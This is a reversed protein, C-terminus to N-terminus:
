QSRWFVNKWVKHVEQCVPCCLANNPTSSSTNAAFVTHKKIKGSAKIESRERKGSSMLLREHVVAKQQLCERFTVLNAVTTGRELFSFWQEKLKIPLKPVVLSM